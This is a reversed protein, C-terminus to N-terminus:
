GTSTLSSEVRQFTDAQEAYVSPPAFFVLLQRPTSDLALVRLQLSADDVLGLDGAMATATLDGVPVRTGPRLQGGQGPLLAQSAQLQADASSGELRPRHYIALGVVAQPDADVAAAATATGEPDDGFLGTLDTPSLVTVTSDGAEHLHVDWDAPVDLTYPVGEGAFTTWREEGGRLLLWSAVAAAVAVAVAVLAWSRRGRRRRRTGAGAPVDVLETPPEAGSTVM